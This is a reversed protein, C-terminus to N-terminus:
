RKVASVGAGRGCIAVYDSPVATCASVRAQDSEKLTAIMVGVARYCTPGYDSADLLRCVAVGSEIDASWNILNKAVGAYCWGRYSERGEDCLRVAEVPDKTRGTIDRGLSEFCTPRVAVPAKECERAADGYDFGNLYLMVATQMGYCADLYRQHIASCPYHPDAPDLAKWESATAAGHSGPAAGHSRVSDRLLTALHHPSTAAMINEMFVGGYCSKREWRGELLNCATLASPLSHHHFMTLGHGLGHLCQFYTWRQDGEYGSCVANVTSSDAEGTDQLYAQIVGHYCGSALRETCNALAARVNSRQQYAEIGIHHAYVHADRAVEGDMRTLYEATAMASEVGGDRIERSLAARYCDVRHPGSLPSCTSHTAWAAPASDRPVPKGLPSIAGSGSVAASSRLLYIGAAVVVTLSVVAVSVKWIRSEPVALSGGRQSLIRRVWAIM